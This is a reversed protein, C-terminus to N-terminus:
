FKVYFPYVYNYKSNTGSIIYDIVILVRGEEAEDLQVEVNNLKIRAEHYIIATKVLHALYTKFHENVSEFLMSDLNCGYTPQMVREQLATSLLIFLSEEIDKVGTVTNMLIGGASFSPPFSWGKGIYPISENSM